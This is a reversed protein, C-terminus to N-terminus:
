LSEFFTLVRNVSNESGLFNLLYKHVIVKIEAKNSIVVINM